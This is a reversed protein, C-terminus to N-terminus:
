GTNPEQGYIIRRRGCDTDFLTRCGRLESRAQETEAKAEAPQAANGVVHDLFEDFVGQLVSM